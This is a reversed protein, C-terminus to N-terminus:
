HRHDVVVRHRIRAPADLPVLRDAAPGAPAAGGAAGLPWALRERRRPRNDRAVGVRAGPSLGSVGFRGVPLSRDVSGSPYRQRWAVPISERHGKIGDDWGLWARDQIPPMTEEESTSSTGPSAGSTRAPTGHSRRAETGGGSGGGKTPASNQRESPAVPPTPVDRSPHLGPTPGSGVVVPGPQPDAVVPSRTVPATDLTASGAAVVIMTPVSTLLVLLASILLPRRNPSFLRHHRVDSQM